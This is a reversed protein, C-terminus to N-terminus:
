NDSDVLAACGYCQLSYVRGNDNDHCVCVCVCVEKLQDLEEVLPELRGVDKTGLDLAEKAEFLRRWEESVKALRAQFAQLAKLAQRPPAAGDM